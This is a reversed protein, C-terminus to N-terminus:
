NNGNKNEVDNLVTLGQLLITTAKMAMEISDGHSEHLVLAMKLSTKKCEDIEDKTLM